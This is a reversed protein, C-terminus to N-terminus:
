IKSVINSDLLISKLRKVGSQFSFQSIYKKQLTERNFSKDRIEKCAKEFSQTDEYVFMDRSDIFPQYGRSSVTHTLVPLGYKLGDMIRLKLGGGLSTPCIYVDGSQLIEGMDKPSPILEIGLHNCKEIISSSPNRGAIILKANPICKKLIPYYIDLWPLLSVKTQMSSLDGTIIYIPESSTKEVPFPLNKEESEFVGIVKIDKEKNPDYHIHMLDKDQETLVLNLDSADIANMEHKRMWFMMSQKLPFINNDRAFEVEYNHHITIVNAGSQKAKRIVGATVRSHDFVVLDYRGTKLIEPLSQYYRHVHGRLLNLLKLLKPKNDAVPFMKNVGDIQSPETDDMQPYVLDLQGHFLKAFARVYAKSAFIGGGIGELPHFTVFLVKM